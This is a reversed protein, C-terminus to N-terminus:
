SAQLSALLRAPRGSAATPEPAPELLQTVNMQLGRGSVRLELQTRVAQGSPDCGLLAELALMGLRLSLQDDHAARGLSEFVPTLHDVLLHGDDPCGPLEAVISDGGESADLNAVNVEALLAGHEDISWRDALEDLVQARWGARLVPKRRAPYWWSTFGQATEVVEAGVGRPTSRSLSAADVSLISFHRPYDVRLRDNGVSVAAPTRRLAGLLAACDLRLTELPSAEAIRRAYEEDHLRDALLRAMLSRAEGRERPAPLCFGPRLRVSGLSWSPCHRMLCDRFDLGGPRPGVMSMHGSLVSFLEPWRELGSRRLLRGVRSLQPHEGRRRGAVRLRRGLVRFRRRQFLCGGADHIRRGSDDRRAARRQRGLRPSRHIVRGDREALLALSALLAVPALLLVGCGAIVLDFGRKTRPSAIDM